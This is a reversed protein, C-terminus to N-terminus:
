ESRQRLTSRRNTRRRRAPAKPAAPMEPVDDTMATLGALFTRLSNDGQGAYKGSTVKFTGGCDCAVGKAYRASAQENMKIETHCRSCRVVVEKIPEPDYWRTM